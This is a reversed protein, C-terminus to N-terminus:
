DDMQRDLYLAQRGTETMLCGVGAPGAGSGDGWQSREYACKDDRFTIWARQMARLADAQSLGFGASEADYGRLIQMLAGYNRNLEADWYSLEADLCGVMGVTSFGGPTDEMCRNASEGICAVENLENGATAVCRASPVPDFVLEQAALPTALAMAALLWKV